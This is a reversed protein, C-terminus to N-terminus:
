TEMAPKRKRYWMWGVGAAVVLALLAIIIWGGGSSPDQVDPGTPGPGPGPDDGAKYFTINFLNSQGMSSPDDPDFAYIVVGTLDEPKTTDMPFVVTATGAENDITVLERNCDFSIAASDVDAFHDTLDIVLAPEGEVVDYNEEMPKVLDPPDNVAKVHVYVDQEAFDGNDGTVNVRVIEDMAEEVDYFFIIHFGDIAVNESNVGLAYNVGPEMNKLYPAVDLAFAEDELVTISGIPGFAFV